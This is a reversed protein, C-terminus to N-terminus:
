EVGHGHVGEARDDMAVLGGGVPPLHCGAQALEDGALHEVHRDLGGDAAADDGALRDLGLALVDQGLAIAAVDGALSLQELALLFALPAHLVDPPHLDGLLGENGSQAEVLLTAAISALKSTASRPSSITSRARPSISTALTGAKRSCSSTASPRSVGSTTTSMVSTWNM